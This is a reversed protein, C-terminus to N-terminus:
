PWNKYLVVAHGSLENSVEVASVAETDTLLFKAIDEQSEYGKDKCVSLSDGLIKMINDVNLLGEYGIWVRIIYTKAGRPYYMIRMVYEKLIEM